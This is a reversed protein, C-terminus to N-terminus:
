FTYGLHLTTFMTVPAIDYELDGLTNTGSLTSSYGIGAWPKIYLGFDFPQWTYGGYAMLLSNTLKESGVITKNEIKYEQIALQAGVFWKKNVQSFHHEGFVSYGQDLRVNWGKGKNKKNFDVLVNPLDMAYVGIGVLLHESNKPKLRLHIGYGEFGFTAPDIEVSIETKSQKQKDKQAFAGLSILFIVIILTSKRIILNNM